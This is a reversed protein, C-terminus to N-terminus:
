FLPSEFRTDAAGSEGGIDPTMRVRPSRGLNHAVHLFNIARECTPTSSVISRSKWKQSLRLDPQIFTLFLVGALHNDSRDSSGPCGADQIVGVTM